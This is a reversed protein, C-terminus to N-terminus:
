KFDERKELDMGERIMEVGHKTEIYGWIIFAPSATLGIAVGAVPSAIAGIGIPILVGESLYTLGEYV